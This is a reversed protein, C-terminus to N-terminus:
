LIRLREWWQNVAMNWKVVEWIYKRNNRNRTYQICYVNRKLILM